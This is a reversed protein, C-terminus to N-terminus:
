TSLSTAPRVRGNSKKYNPELLNGKGIDQCQMLGHAIDHVLLRFFTDRIIMHRSFYSYAQKFPRHGHVTVVQYKVIAM